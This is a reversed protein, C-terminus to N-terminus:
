HPDASGPTSPRPSAPNPPAKKDLEEVLGYLDTKGFRVARELAEDDVAVLPPWRIAHSKSPWLRHFAGPQRYTVAIREENHQGLVHVLLHGIAMATVYGNPLTPQLGPGEGFLAQDRFFASWRAGSYHGLRVDTSPGPSRNAYFYRMHDIPIASTESALSLMLTTKYSWRLLLDQHEPQLVIPNGFIMHTVLDKAEGELDSMWGHNCKGCVRRVTQDLRPTQREWERARDPTSHTITWGLPDRFVDNLWDPWVHERTLGNAQDCFVCRRAGTSRVM